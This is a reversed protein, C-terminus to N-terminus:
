ARACRPLGRGRAARHGACCRRPRSSASARASRTSCSSTPAPSARICSTAASRWRDARRHTGQPPPHHARRAPGPDSARPQRRRCQDGLLRGEPRAARRRRRCSPARRPPRPAHREADDGHRDPDRGESMSSTRTSMNMVDAGLRKGALEFSSQTRTSSEFFLNILTRGRLDDRKKAVQRSVTSAQEALDLLGVIEDRSLGEIGLLHRHPFSFETAEATISMLASEIPRSQGPPLCPQRCALRSRM